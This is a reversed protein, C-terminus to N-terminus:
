KNAEVIRNYQELWENSDKAETERFETPKIHNSKRKVHNIGLNAETLTNVLVIINPDLGEPNEGSPLNFGRGFGSLPLPPSPNNNNNNGPSSNNNGEFIGFEGFPNDFHPFHGGGTNGISTM